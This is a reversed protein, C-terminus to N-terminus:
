HKVIKQMSLPKGEHDEIVVMYMGAALNGIYITETEKMWPLNEMRLIQGLQNILKITTLTGKVFDPRAIHVIDNAPNPYISIREKSPVVNRVGDSMYTEYYYYFIRSISTNYWGAETATDMINYNYETAITPNKYSDYVFSTKYGTYLKPPGPYGAYMKYFLTDPLGSSSIHKSSTCKYMITDNVFTKTLSSTFYSVGTTYGFSDKSSSYWSGNFSLYDSASDTCLLNGPYYTLVRRSAPQWFGSSDAFTQIYTVNGSGDYSFVTKDSPEWYGGGFNASGSDTILYGSSNYYFNSAGITDWSSGFYDFYLANTLRGGADYYYAIRDKSGPITPYYENTVGAMKNSSYAYSSKAAYGFTDFMVVGFPCYSNWLWATDPYLQTYFGVNALVTPVYSFSLLYDEGVPSTSTGLSPSGYDMSQYSFISGRQGSYVFYGSDSKGWPLVSTDQYNYGCFSKLRESVTSTTKAGASKVAEERLYQEHLIKRVLASSNMKHRDHFSTQAHLLSFQSCYCILLVFLCKRM